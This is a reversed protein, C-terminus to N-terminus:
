FIFSANIGCDTLFSKVIPIKSLDNLKVAKNDNGPIFGDIFVIGLDEPIKLNIESTFFDYARSEPTSLINNNELDIRNKFNIIENITEFEFDNEEAWEILEEETMLESELLIEEGVCLLNSENITFVIDNNIKM